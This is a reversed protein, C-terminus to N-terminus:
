FLHKLMETFYSHNAVCRSVTLFYFFFLFSLISRPQIQINCQSIKIHGSFRKLRSHFDECVTNILLPPTVRHSLPQTHTHTCKCIRGTGQPNGRAVEISYSPMRDLTYVPLRRSYGEPERSGTPNDTYLNVLLM